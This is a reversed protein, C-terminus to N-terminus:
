AQAVAHAEARAHTQVEAVEHKLAHLELAAMQARAEALKQIITPGAGLGTAKAQSEHEQAKEMAQTHEAHAEIEAIQKAQAQAAVQAEDQAKAAVLEMTGSASMTAQMATGETLRCHMKKMAQDRAASASMAFESSPKSTAQTPFQSMLAGFTDDNAGSNNNSFCASPLESALGSM